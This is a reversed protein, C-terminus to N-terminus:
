EGKSAGYIEAVRAWNVVDWFNKAYEARRNQYDLYYAHEWVDLGLLPEGNPTIVDMLPNDQNAMSTIQLAGSEDRILWVWGSGFVRIAAQEFAEKFAEVSGFNDSLAAALAAPMERNAPNDTMIEWFFSHNWHGGGNNRVAMDYQSITKQLARLTVGDPIEANNLNTVYAQHHRGHHLNMTETDVFGSIADADYPLDLLTFPATQTNFDEAKAAPNAILLIAALITLAAFITLTPRKSTM